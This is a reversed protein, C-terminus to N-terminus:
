LKLPVYSGPRAGEHLPSGAVGARVSRTPDLTVEDVTKAAVDVTFEAAPRLEFRDAAKAVTVHEFVFRDGGRRPL